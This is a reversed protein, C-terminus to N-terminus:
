KNNLCTITLFLGKYYEHVDEITFDFMKILGLTDRNLHCGDCIKKWFPTLIDQAKALFPQKLMVHEFFLINAGPKSVRLIEKLAQQPEPITCFVLTAVVTDFTNDAFPLSEAGVIYTQINAKSKKVKKGSRKSMLPNPEIADVQDAHQYFPFNVGTGSGIELVRGEAKSLLQRRIKKFKYKELPNMVLDYLKPFWKGM